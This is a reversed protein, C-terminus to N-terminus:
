FRGINSKNFNELKKTKSSCFNDFSNNKGSVCKTKVMTPDSISRKLTIAMEKLLKQDQDDQLKLAFTCVLSFNGFRAM